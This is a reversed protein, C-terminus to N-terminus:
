ESLVSSMWAVDPFSVAITTAWDADNLRKWNDTILEGYSSAIGVYARPGTCTEATVIMMRPAGTGVHLIRGVDNGAEDTPQTHVDAVVPDFEFGPYQDLYLNPYWGSVNTRSVGGCMFSEDWKVADNIFDLLEQSHATGTLQNEAMKQLNGTVTKFNSVWAETKSKLNTPGDPLGQAVTGVADALSGLKAYFEPYPDVYADPFQCSNGSTYSQKIYLITDRRLEAWSALQTSLMRNQWAATQAISPLAAGNQPSLSRLAGLWRTYLSGEWYAAEHADVLTRTKALGQVYSTNGFEASLLPLAANNALAAFAADLPNPMMRDAVRDYTVNVFTHSDVTYRQGFVLFSRDLPLPKTSPADKIIIRSAIRQAGWGGLAIEDIIQQDTLRAAEALSAVSLAAMLGDISKPNMSDHEGTYAGITDDIHQWLKFETDGMLERLAVAADFQRRYFLQSGDGQTEVLRLDVRGLWMMAKFYLKLQESDAYHGRPTFQSFDEDRTVGFLKVEKHGTAATALQYLQALETEAAGAVPAVLKGNLLSLALGLYLDADQKVSADMGASTLTSRMGELMLSLEGALVLEETQKLLADFTRHVAELISDASVYVPLDEAYISKYGYAFSPFTKRKSIVFGNQTLAALENNNLALSSAQILSMGTATTADYNLATAAPTPYTATLGPGDLTAATALAQQLSAPVEDTATVTESPGEPKAASPDSTGPDTGCSSCALLALLSSVHRISRFGPSATM